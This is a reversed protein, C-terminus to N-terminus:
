RNVLVIRGTSHEDSVEIRSHFIADGDVNYLYVLWGGAALTAQFRGAHNTTVTERLNPQNANVFLIKVQARPTKDGRVLEGEVVADAGLVIRDLKIAAPQAPASRNRFALPPSKRPCPSGPPAAM